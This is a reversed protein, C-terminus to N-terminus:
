CILDIWALCARNQSAETHPNSKCRRKRIFVCSQRWPAHSWCLLHHRFLAAFPLIQSTLFRNSAFL